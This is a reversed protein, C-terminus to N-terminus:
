QRLEGHKSVTACLHRQHFVCFNLPRTRTELIPFVMQLFYTKLGSLSLATVNAMKLAQM